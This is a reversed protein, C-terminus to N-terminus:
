AGSCCRRAGRRLVLPLSLCRIFGAGLISFRWSSLGERDESIRAGNLDGGLVSASPAYPNFSHSTSASLAQDLAILFEGFHELSSPDKLLLFLRLIFIPAQGPRLDWWLLELRGEQFVQLDAADQLRQEPRLLPFFLGSGAGGVSRITVLLELSVSSITVVSNCYFCVCVISRHKLPRHQSNKVEKWREHVM